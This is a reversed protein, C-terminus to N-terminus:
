VRQCADVDADSKGKAKPIEILFNEGDNFNFIKDIKKKNNQEREGLCLM